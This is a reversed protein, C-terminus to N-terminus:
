HRLGVATHRWLHHGDAICPWDRVLEGEVAVAKRKSAVLTRYRVEVVLVLHPGHVIRLAFPQQLTCSTGRAHDDEIVNHAASGPRPIALFPDLLRGLPCMIIISQAGAWLAEAVQQGSLGLRQERVAEGDDVDPLRNASRYLLRRQRHAVCLAQPLVIENGAVQNVWLAPALDIRHRE